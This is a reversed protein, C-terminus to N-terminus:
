SDMRSLLLNEIKFGNLSGPGGIEDFASNRGSSKNHRTRSHIVSHDGEAMTERPTEV